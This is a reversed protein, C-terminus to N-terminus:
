VNKKQEMKVGGGTGGEFSGAYIGLSDFTLFAEDTCQDCQLSEPRDDYSGFWETIHGDKCKYNYIPM